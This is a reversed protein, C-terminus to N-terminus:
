ENPNNIIWVKVGQDMARQGRSDKTRQDRSENAKQHGNVMWGKAGTSGLCMSCPGITSHWRTLLDVRWRNLPWPPLHDISSRSWLVQTYTNPPLSLTFVPLVFDRNANWCSGLVGRGGRRFGREEKSRGGMCCCFCPPRLVVDCTDANGPRLASWIVNVHLYVHMNWNTWMGIWIAHICIYIYM